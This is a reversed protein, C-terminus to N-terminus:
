CWKVDRRFLRWWSRFAPFSKSVSQKCMSISAISSSNIVSILNGLSDSLEITQDVDERVGHSIIKKTPIFKLSDIIEAAGEVIVFQPTVIPKGVILYGHAATVDLRPEVPIRRRSRRTFQFQLSDPSVKLVRVESPIVVSHALEDAHLTLAGLDAAPITRDSLDLRFRSNSTFRMVLIQWGAGRIHVHLREPINNAIAFGKPATVLVPLDIDDEYPLSLRVYCWLLLAFFMAGILIGVTRGFGM